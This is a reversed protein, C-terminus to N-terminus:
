KALFARFMNPIVHERGLAFAAAVVHPKGSAIFGFTTKMFERAPEPIDGQELATAIGVKKVLEIFAMPRAASVGVEDMALCYLEFHSAYTENGAADPLGIDSEEELIIENIFRRVSPDGFPLWPVAAPAIEGQLYKALSMFGM